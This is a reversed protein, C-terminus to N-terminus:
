EMVNILELKTSVDVSLSVITEEFVFIMRDDTESYSKLKGKYLTEWCCTDDLASLKVYKDLMDM